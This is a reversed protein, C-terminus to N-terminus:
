AHRPSLSSTSVAFSNAKSCNNKAWGLGMGPFNQRPCPNELGHPVEREVADRVHHVLVDCVKSALDITGKM